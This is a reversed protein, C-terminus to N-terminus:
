ASVLSVIEDFAGRTRARGRPCAAANDTNIRSGAAAKRPKHSRARTHTHAKSKWYLNMDWLNQLNSGMVNTGKWALRILHSSSFLACTLPM